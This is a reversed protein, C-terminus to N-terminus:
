WSSPVDILLSLSSVKFDAGQCVDKSEISEAVM